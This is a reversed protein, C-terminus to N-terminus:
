KPWSVILNMNGALHFKTEGNTVIFHDGKVVPVGDFEGNGEIVSVNLFPVDYKAMMQNTVEIHDVGYYMCDELHTVKAGTTIIEVRKEDQEDGAFPATIVDESQKVHLQRPKGDQLRDYDYVRYTIDSNQQTELILTGTKIAHVTGPNIQFFDGKHVPIVRIFEDWQGNEIMSVVEEHGAANHGIVIQADEDCDLIYWCEMKGFSGNEHEAAYADDPHVQISLDAKADIIKILLPFREYKLNGFLAPEEKWLSSLTRGAYRGRTIECDGHEHASIVWAEGTHDSPIPYGFDSKLRSGGWITEKYIPNMFLLM